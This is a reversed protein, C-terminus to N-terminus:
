EMLIGHAGAQYRVQAQGPSVVSIISCVYLFEISSLTASVFGVDTLLITGGSSRAGWILILGQNGPALTADEAKLFSQRKMM